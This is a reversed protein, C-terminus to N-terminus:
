AGCNMDTDPFGGNLPKYEGPSAALENAGSTEGACRPCLGVYDVRYGLVRFDTRGVSERSIEAETNIAVDGVRNCRLCRIHGHDSVDADFRKRGGPESIVRVLGEGALTQLNRYVTGLSIRPLTGRVIGYIEDATPHTKLKALENLILRRQKTMRRTANM